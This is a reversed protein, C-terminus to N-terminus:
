QARNKNPENDREQHNRRQNEKQVSGSCSSASPLCNRHLGDGNGGGGGDGGGGTEQSTV